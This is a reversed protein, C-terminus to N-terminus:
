KASKGHIHDGIRRMRSLEEETMPGSDLTVLNERMQELNKAGMM